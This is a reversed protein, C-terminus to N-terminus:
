RFIKVLVFLPHFSHSNAGDHRDGEGDRAKEGMFSVGYADDLDVIVFSAAIEGGQLHFHRFDHGSPEAKHHGSFLYEGHEPDVLLLLGNDLLNKELEAGPSADLHFINEVPHDRLKGVDDTELAAGQKGHGFIVFVHDELGSIWLVDTVVPDSLGERYPAFRSKFQDQLSSSIVHFCGKLHDSGGIHEDHVRLSARVDRPAQLTKGRSVVHVGNEVDREILSFLDGMEHGNICQVLPLPIRFPFDLDEHEQAPLEHFGLTHLAQVVDEVIELIRGNGSCSECPSKLLKDLLLLGQLVARGHFFIRVDKKIFRAPKLLHREADVLGAFFLHDVQRGHQDVTEPDVFLHDLLDELLVYREVFPREVVREVHLAVRKVEFSNEVIKEVVGRVGNGQFASDQGNSGIGAAVHSTHLDAIGSHDRFRFPKAKKFPFTSASAEVNGM